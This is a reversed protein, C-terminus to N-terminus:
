LWQLIPLDPHRPEQKHTLTVELDCDKKKEKKIGSSKSIEKSCTSTPDILSKNVFQTGIQLVYVIYKCICQCICFSIFPLGFKRQSNQMNIIIKTM